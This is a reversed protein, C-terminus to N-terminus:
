PHDACMVTDCNEMYVVHILNFILQVETHYMETYRYQLIPVVCDQLVRPGQEGRRLPCWVM